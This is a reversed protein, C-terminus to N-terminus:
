QQGHLEFFAREIDAAADEHVRARLSIARRLVDLETQLRRSADDPSDFNRDSHQNTTAL